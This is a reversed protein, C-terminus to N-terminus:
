VVSKRDTGAADTKIDKGPAGHWGLGCRCILENFGDLWGIGGRRMQDVFSPHVPREVPSKWRLPVGDAEGRWVGMGRTPLLQLTLRENGITVVDVGDSLGGALRQMDIRFPSSSEAGGSTTEHIGEDVHILELHAM